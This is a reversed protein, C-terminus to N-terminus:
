AGIGGHILGGVKAHVHGHTYTYAITKLLFLCVGFHYLRVQLFPANKNHHTDRQGRRSM